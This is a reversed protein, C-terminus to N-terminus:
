DHLMAGPDSAPALPKAAFELAVDLAAFPDQDDARRPGHARGGDLERLLDTGADDADDSAVATVRRLFRRRADDNGRHVCFVDRGVGFRKLRDDPVQEDRM